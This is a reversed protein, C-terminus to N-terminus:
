AFEFSLAAIAAVIIFSYFVWMFLPGRANDATALAIDTENKVARVNKDGQLVDQTAIFEAEAAPYGEKRLQLSRKLVKCKQNQNM